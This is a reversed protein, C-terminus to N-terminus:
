QDQLENQQCIYLYRNCSIRLPIGTVFGALPGHAVHAVLAQWALWANLEQIKAHMVHCTEQLMVFMVM